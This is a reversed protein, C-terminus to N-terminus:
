AFCMVFGSLLYFAASSHKGWCTLQNFLFLLQLSTCISCADKKREILSFFRSRMSLDEWGVVDHQSLYLALAPRPFLSLKLLFALLFPFIVRVGSLKSLWLLYEQNTSQCVHVHLVHKLMIFKDSNQFNRVHGETYVKRVTQQGLLYDQSTSQCVHVPVVRTLM